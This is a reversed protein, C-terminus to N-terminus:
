YSEAKIGKIREFHEKDRTIITNINNSLAIGAIMCDTHSIAKGELILQGAIKASKIASEHDLGLIYFKDFLDEFKQLKGEHDINKISFVGMLTEYISVETCFVRDEKNLELSKQLAAPMNRSLDIIFTTDVIKM